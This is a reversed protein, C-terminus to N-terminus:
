SIGGLSLTPWPLSLIACTSPGSVLPDPNLRPLHSLGKPAADQLNDVSAVPQSSPHSSIESTTQPWVQGSPSSDTFLPLQNYLDLPRALEAWGARACKGAKGGPGPLLYPSLVAVIPMDPM